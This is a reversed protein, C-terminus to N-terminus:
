RPQNNGIGRLGGRLKGGSAAYPSLGRAASTRGILGVPDGSAFGVPLRLASGSRIVYPDSRASPLDGMLKRFEEFLSSDRGAAAEPTSCASAPHKKDRMGQAHQREPQHAARAPPDQTSRSATIRRRSRSRGSTSTAFPSTPGSSRVQAQLVLTASGLLQHGLYHRVDAEQRDPEERLTSPMGWRRPTAPATPFSSATPDTSSCRM